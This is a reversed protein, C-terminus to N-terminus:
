APCEILDVSRQMRNPCWTTIPVVYAKQAGTSLGRIMGLAARASEQSPFEVVSRYWNQRLYLRVPSLGAKKARELEPKGAQETSDAGFVVGWLGTTPAATSQAAALTQAVTTLTQATQTQTVDAARIAGNNAAVVEQVKTDSPVAVTGPQVIGPNRESIQKLRQANEDREKTVRDLLDTTQQLREALTVNVQKQDQLQDAVKVLATSGKLGWLDFEKIGIAALGENILSPVAVFLVILAAILVGKALEFISKWLDVVDKAPM